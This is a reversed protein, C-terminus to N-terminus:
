ASGAGAPKPPQLYVVLATADEDPIRMFKVPQDFEGLPSNDWAVCWRGSDWRIGVPFNSDPLLALIGCGNKPAHDIPQFVKEAAAPAYVPFLRVGDVKSFPFMADYPYGNPLGDENIWGVVTPAQTFRPHLAICDDDPDVVANNPSLLTDLGGVVRFLSGKRAIEDLRDLLFQVHRIDDSEFHTPADEDGERAPYFGREMAELLGAMEFAAEMDKANAKAMRVGIKKSEGM